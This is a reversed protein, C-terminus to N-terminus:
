HPVDGAKGKFFGAALTTQIEKGKTLFVQQDTIAYHFNTNRFSRELITQLPVNAAELTVKLSDFQAPNYYFHYGSKSELEAVFQEINAGHFNVNFTKQSQQALAIKTFILLLFVLYCKKM